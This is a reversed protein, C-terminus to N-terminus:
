QLREGASLCRRPHIPICKNLSLTGSSATWAMPTTEFGDFATAVNAVQFPTTSDHHRGWFDYYELELSHSGLALRSAPFTLETPTATCGTISCVNAMNVGDVRWFVNQLMSASPNDVRAGRRVVDAQFHVTGDPIITQDGCVLPEFSKPYALEVGLKDYFSLGGAYDYQRTVLNWGWNGPAPCNYMDAQGAYNYQMVSMVDYPTGIVGGYNV